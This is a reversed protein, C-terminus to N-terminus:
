DGGWNQTAAIIALVGIVVGVTILVIGWGPVGAQIQDNAERSRDALQRLSEDDLSVLAVEVKELDVLRAWQQRVLEHHLLKQVEKVNELRQASQAAMRHQLEEVAVIHGREIGAMLERHLFFNLVLPLCICATCFNRRSKM